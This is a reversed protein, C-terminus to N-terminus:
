KFTRWSAMKQKFVANDRQIQQATYSGTPPMKPMTNRAYCAHVGTHHNGCVACVMVGPTGTCGKKGTSQYPVNCNGQCSSSGCTKCSGSKCLPNTCVTQGWGISTHCRSCSM